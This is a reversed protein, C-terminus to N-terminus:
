DIQQEAGAAVFATGNYTFLQNITKGASGTSVASTISTGFTLTESANSKSRVLLQAGRKVGANITLNLTRNGTAETTVGDVEGWDSTITVAQAGTATLTYVVVAGAPFSVVAM